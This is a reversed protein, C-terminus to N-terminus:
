GQELQLTDEQAKDAAMKFDETGVHKTRKKCQGFLDQANLKVKSM